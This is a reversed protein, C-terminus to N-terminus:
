EFRQVAKLDNEGFAAKVMENIEKTIKGFRFCFSVWISNKGEFYGNSFVPGYNIRVLIFV